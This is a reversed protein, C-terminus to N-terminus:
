ALINGLALLTWGAAYTIRFSQEDFKLKFLQCTWKVLYALLFPVLMLGLAGGLTEALNLQRGRLILILASVTVSAVFVWATRKNRTM